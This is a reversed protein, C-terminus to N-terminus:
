LRRMECRKKIRRRQYQTYRRREIIWPSVGEVRAGRWPVRVEGRAAGWGPAHNDLGTPTPRQKRCRRPRTDDDKETRRGLGVAGVGDLPPVSALDFCATVNDDPPWRGDMSMLLQMGPRVDDHALHSQLLFLVVDEEAGLVLLRVFELSLHIHAPVLHYLTICVESFV